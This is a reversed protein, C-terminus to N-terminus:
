DYSTFLFQKLRQKFVRINVISKLDSPLSNWHKIATFAFGKQSLSLERTMVFNLGSGRTNHSHVASISTFNPLLYKPALNNRIRFLHTLQFFKVRDPINLWFLDKLNKNDM